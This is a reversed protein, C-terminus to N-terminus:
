LMGLTNALIMGVAALLNWALHAVISAKVSGTITRLATLFMSLLAIQLLAAGTEFGALLHIAAFTLAVITFPVLHQRWAPTNAPAHALLANYLAGRFILEEAIPVVTSVVILSAAQLEPTSFLQMQVEIEASGVIQALGLEIGGLVFVTLPPVAWLSIRESRHWSMWDAFAVRVRSFQGWLRPWMGAVVITLAASLAVAFLGMGLVLSTNTLDAMSRIQGTLVAVALLPIAFVIQMPVYTTFLAGVLVWRSWRSPEAPRDNTPLTAEM